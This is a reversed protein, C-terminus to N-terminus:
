PQVLLSAQPISPVAVSVGIHKSRVTSRMFSSFYHKLDASSQAGAEFTRGSLFGGIQPSFNAGQSAESYYEVTRLFHIVSMLAL